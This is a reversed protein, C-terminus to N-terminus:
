KKIQEIQAQSLLLTQGEKLNLDTLKLKGYQVRKLNTVQYNFTKFMRKVQHFKGEDITLFAQNSSIIELQGPRTIENPGIQVGQAFHSILASDIKQDVTVLYVKEVHKKPSTLSHTWQGDNTVLLLGTTDKDLRGVTHLNQINRYKPELIEFITSHLNDINACVYGTPKNIALYITWWSYIEQGQIKIETGIFNEFDQNVVQGDITVEQNKFFQLIQKRSFNTNQVLLKILKKQM